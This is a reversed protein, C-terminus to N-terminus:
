GNKGLVKVWLWLCVSTHSQTFPSPLVVNKALVDVLAKQGPAANMSVSVFVVTAHFSILNVHYM